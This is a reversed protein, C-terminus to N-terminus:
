ILTVSIIYGAVILLGTVLHTIVTLANGPILGMPDQHSKLLITVAKLCLPITALSLLVPFPLIGCAIGYGIIIYATVVSAIYVRIAWRYGLRVVLHHKGIAKDTHFDPFENIWLIMAILIGIPISATLPQQLSLEQTQVYYSGIVMLPGFNLGVLLEGFGKYSLQLPPATYFYISFVGIIGLVLIIFGRLLILYFGIVSGLVLYSFSVALHKKPTIGREMVLVRGGGAFPNRHEVMQDAGSLYDFYDNFMNVAAQLLIGGILTLAFLFPDFLGSVSWAISAGILVPIYAAQFFPFRTAKFWFWIKSSLGVRQM